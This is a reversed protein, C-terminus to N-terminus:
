HREGRVCWQQTRTTQREMDIGAITYFDQLKRKNGIGYKDLRNVLRPMKLDQQRRKGKWELNYKIRDLILDTLDNHMAGEGYVDNVTEWFKPSEKRVYMHKVVDVSPAYVDWGNTYARASMMIEEGMFIYPLLPDYKVDRLFSTHAVYFGAAIFLSLGPNHLQARIQAGSGFRGTHELRMIDDAFRIDCLAEPMYEGPKLNSWSDDHPPPYNSLIARPFSKAERLNEIVVKDWDQRFHSHSDIQMFFAQGEWLKSAVYRAFFPGYSETENLRLLRM